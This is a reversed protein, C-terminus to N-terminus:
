QDIPNDLYLGFLPDNPDLIDGIVLREERAM